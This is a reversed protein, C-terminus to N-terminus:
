WDRGAPAPSLYVVGGAVRVAYRRTEGEDPAEARGSELGISWDHLPCVVRCGTVIGQSLPGGRHPCRDELAFVRDDCTRFVAIDCAGTRVVRAGLRPIADLPGIEIWDAQAHLPVVAGM